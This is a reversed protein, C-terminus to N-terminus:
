LYMNEDNQLMNQGSFKFYKACSKTTSYIHNNINAPSMDCIQYLVIDFIKKLMNNQAHSTLNRTYRMIEM